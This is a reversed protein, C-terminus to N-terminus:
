KIKRKAGKNISNFIRSIGRPHQLSLISFHMFFASEGSDSTITTLPSVSCLTQSHTPPSHAALVPSSPHPWTAAPGGAPRPASATQYCCPGPSCGPM